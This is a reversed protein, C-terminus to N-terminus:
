LTGRTPRTFGALPAAVSNSSGTVPATFKALAWTLPMAGPGSPDTHIVPPYAPVIPRTSGAPFTVAYAVPRDGYATVTPGSWATHNVSVLPRIPRSSGAM